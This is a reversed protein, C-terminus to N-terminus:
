GYSRNLWNFTIHLEQSDCANLIFELFIHELGNLFKSSCSNLYPHEGTVFYFSCLTYGNGCAHVATLLRDM